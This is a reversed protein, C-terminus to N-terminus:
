IREALHFAQPHRGARRRKRELALRGLDALDSHHQPYRVHELAANTSGAVPNADGHLENVGPIAELQPGLAVVTLHLVDKVDLILNGTGDGLPEPHGQACSGFSRRVVEFGVLEIL